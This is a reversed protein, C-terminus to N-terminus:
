VDIQAGQETMRNRLVVFKNYSVILFVVILILLIIIIGALIFKVSFM